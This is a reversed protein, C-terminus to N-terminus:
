HCVPCIWILQSRRCQKSLCPMDHEALSPNVVGRRAFNKVIAPANDCICHIMAVSLLPYGCLIKRIEQHICINHTSM